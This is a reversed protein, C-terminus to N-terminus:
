RTRSLGEDAVRWHKHAGVKKDTKKNTNDQQKTLLDHSIIKALIKLGDYPCGVGSHGQSVSGSHNIMIKYGMSSHYAYILIITLVLLVYHSGLM